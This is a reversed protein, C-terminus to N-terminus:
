KWRIWYNVHSKYLTLLFQLFFSLLLIICYDPMVSLYVVLYHDILHVYHFVNTLMKCMAKFLYTGSLSSDLM